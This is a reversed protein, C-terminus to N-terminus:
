AAAAADTTSMTTTNTAAHLNAKMRELQELM